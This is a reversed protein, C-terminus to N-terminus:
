QSSKEAIKRSVWGPIKWGKKQFSQRLRAYASQAGPKGKRANVGADVLENLAQTQEATQGEGERAGSGGTGFADVEVDDDGNDGGDDGNGDKDQDEDGFKKVGWEKLKTNAKAILESEGLKGDTERDIMEIVDYVAAPSYELDPTSILNRLIKNRRESSKLQKDLRENKETEAQLLGKVDGDAKSENEKKKREKETTEYDTVRQQLTDTQSLREAIDPRKKIIDELSMEAIGVSKASDDSKRGEGGKDSADGTGGNSDPSLLIFHEGLM